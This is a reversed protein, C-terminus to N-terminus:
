PAVAEELFRALFDGLGACLEDDADFPFSRCPGEAKGARFPGVLTIEGRSKVTVIAATRGRRLDFQVARVHKDDLRPAALEISLHPAGARAAAAHFRALAAEVRAHLTEARGRAAQLADREAAEREGLSRGLAALREALPDAAVPM